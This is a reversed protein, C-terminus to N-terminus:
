LDSRRIEFEGETTLYDFYGSPYDPSDIKCIYTYKGIPISTPAQMLVYDMGINNMVIPAITSGRVSFVVSDNTGLFFPSGNPNRLNIKLPLYQSRPVSINGFRNVFKSM